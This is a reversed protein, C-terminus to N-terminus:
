LFRGCFFHQPEEVGTIMSIVQPCTLLYVGLFVTSVAAVTLYIRRKQPKPVKSSQVMKRFIMVYETGHAARVAMGGVPSLMKLPLLFVRSIFSVKNSNEQRPFYLANVVLAAAACLTLVGGIFEASAMGPIKFKDMEFVGPLWYILEGALLLQFLRREYKEARLALSKESETLQHGRRIASNYCLSIGRIQAVLHQDPGLLEFLLWITAM